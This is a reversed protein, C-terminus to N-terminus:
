VFYEMAGSSLTFGHRQTRILTRLIGSCSATTQKAILFALRHLLFRWGRGKGVFSNNNNENTLCEDMDNLKVSPYLNSSKGNEQELDSTAEEEHSIRARNFIRRNM